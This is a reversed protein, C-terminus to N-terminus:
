NKVGRLNMFGFGLSNREGLGSDYAFQMIERNGNLGEIGFEWCTGIVPSEYGNIMVPSCVQKRFKLTDFLKINKYRSVCEHYEPLTQTNYKAYKCLLKTRIQDLFVDLPQEHKWYTFNDYVLEYGYKQYLNKTIRITIPTGTFLTFDGHPLRSSIEKLFNIKFTMYGINIKTQRDALISLMDFLYGIFKQNPSSIIFTRIDDKKLNSFPFINSFAFFKAGKEDHINEYPSERLQNYIFGQLHAHYQMEYQTDQTSKLEVVLRM